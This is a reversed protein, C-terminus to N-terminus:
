NRRIKLFGNNWLDMLFADMDRGMQEKDAEKYLGKFKDLLERRGLGGDLLDWLWKGTPNLKKAPSNTKVLLATGARADEHCLIGTAPILRADPPLTFKTAPSDTQTPSFSTRNEKPLWLPHRALSAYDIEFPHKIKKKQHKEWYEYKIGAIDGRTRGYRDRELWEWTWQIRKQSRIIERVKRRMLIVATRDDGFLHAHRCLVPCQVVVREKKELLSFLLYLSDFHFDTEDIYDYGTDHAIMRACIRTGSRQPGTVFIRSFPQLWEFM